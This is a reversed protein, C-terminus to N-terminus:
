LTFVIFLDMISIDRSIMTAAMTTSPHVPLLLEPVGVTVGGGVAVPAVDTGAPLTAVTGAMGDTAGATFEDTVVAVDFMDAPTFAVFEVYMSGDM